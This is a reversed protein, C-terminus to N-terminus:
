EAGANTRLYLNVEGNSQVRHIAPTRELSRFDTRNFHLGDIVRIARVRDFTTVVMYQGGDQSSAELYGTLNHDYEYPPVRDPGWDQGATGSIIHRYRWPPMGAGALEYSRDQHNIAFEYGELQMETVHMSPQFIFPSPFVTILSLCLMAALAISIIGRRADRLRSRGQWTKSDFPDFPDIVGIMAEEDLLRHGLFYYLSFGGLITVILMMSAHYRFYLKSLKGVFHLLAFPALILFGYSVYAIVTDADPPDQQFRAFLSSAMVLGTLGVYIASVMFLKLFIEEVGSGVDTLSSSRQDVVQGVEGSSGEFFGVVTTLILSIQGTLGNHLSAWFVFTIALFLTQSFMFRYRSTFGATSIWREVLQATTVTGFLVLIVAAQQPHYLLVGATSLGLLIGSNTLLGFRTAGGDLFYKMFLYFILAFFLVAQSIPHLALKVVITNIPLLMFGSITGVARGFGSTTLSRMSLSVFMLFIAVFVVVLLMASRVLRFGTLETLLISATHVGPYFLEIPNLAGTRLDKIWGVHTLTDASAFFWYGRLIPMAAIASVSTGGLILTLTRLRRDNTLLSSSISVMLAVFLGAWVVLPTGDYISVEYGSAPNAYAIAVAVTLAIFGVSM